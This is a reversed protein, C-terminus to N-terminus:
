TIHSKKAIKMPNIHFKECNPKAQVKYGLEKFVRKLLRHSYHQRTSLIIKGQPFTSDRLSDYIEDLLDLRTPNNEFLVRTRGMRYFFANKKAFPDKDSDFNKLGNEIPVKQREDSKGREFWYDYMEM